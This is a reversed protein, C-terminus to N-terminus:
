AMKGRSDLAIRALWLCVLANAVGWVRLLMAGGVFATDASLALQVQLAATGLAVGGIFPRLRKSAFGFAALTLAPLASALLLWKHVGVGMLVLDWEGLPQM